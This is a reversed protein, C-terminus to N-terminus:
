LTRMLGSLMYVMKLLEQKIFVQISAAGVQSVETFYKPSKWKKKEAMEPRLCFLNRSNLITGNQKTLKSSLCCIWRCKNYNRNLNQRHVRAFM